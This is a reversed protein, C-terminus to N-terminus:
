WLSFFIQAILFLMVLYQLMVATKSTQTAPTVDGYGVGVQTTFTFYVIDFSEKVGNYNLPNQKWLWWHLISFGVIAILYALLLGLARHDIQLVVM